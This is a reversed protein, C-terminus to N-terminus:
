EMLLNQSHNSYNTSACTFWHHREPSPPTFGRCNVQKLLIFCSWVIIPSEIILHNRWRFHIKSTRLSTKHTERVPKCGQCAVCGMVFGKERVRERSITATTWTSKTALMKSTGQIIHLNQWTQWRRLPDWTSVGNRHNPQDSSLRPLPRHSLCPPKARHDQKITKFRAHFHFFPLLVMSNVTWFDQLVVSTNWFGTFFELHQYKFHAEWFRHHEDPYRVDVDM